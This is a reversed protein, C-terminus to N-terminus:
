YKLKVKVQKTKMVRMEPEEVLNKKGVHDLFPQAKVSAVYAAVFQTLPM